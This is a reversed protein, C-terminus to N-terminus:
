RRQSQSKAYRREMSKRDAEKRKRTREMCRQYDRERTRPDRKVVNWPPEPLDGPPRAMVESGPIEVFGLTSWYDRLRAFDAVWQESPTVARKGELQLPFPIIAAITDADGYYELFAHLVKLGLQQGRQDPLLTMRSAYLLDWKCGRFTDLSLATAAKAALGEGNGYLAYLVRGLEASTCDADWGDVDAGMRFGSFSGVSAGDIRIDGRIQDLDDTEDDPVSRFEVEANSM